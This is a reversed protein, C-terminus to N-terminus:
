TLTLVYSIVIKCTQLLTTALTKSQFVEFKAQPKDPWAARVIEYCVDYSNTSSSELLLGANRQRNKKPQKRKKAPYCDRWHEAMEGRYVVGDDKPRLAPPGSCRLRKWGPLSTRHARPGRYLCYTSYRRRPLKVYFFMFNNVQSTTLEQAPPPDEYHIIHQRPSAM